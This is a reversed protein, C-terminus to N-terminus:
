QYNLFSIILGIIGGVTAGWVVLWGLHAKIMNEIIEKVSEPNLQKLRDDIIKEIDNLLREQNGVIQSKNIEYDLIETM